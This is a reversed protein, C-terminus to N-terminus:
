IFFCACRSGRSARVVRWLLRAHVCMGSSGESQLMFWWECLCWEFLSRCGASHMLPRVSAHFRAMSAFVDVRALLRMFIFPMCGGPDTNTILADSARQATANVKVEGGGVVFADSDSPSIAVGTADQLAQTFTHVSWVSEAGGRYVDMVDSLEVSSDFESRTNGGIFMMMTHLSLGVLRCRPSSLSGVTWVGTATNYIDIVDSVISSSGTGTVGGAFM